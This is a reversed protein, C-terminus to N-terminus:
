TDTVIDKAYYRMGGGTKSKKIKSNRKRSNSTIIVCSFTLSSANGKKAETKTPRHGDTNQRGWSSM